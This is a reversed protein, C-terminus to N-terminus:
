FRNEDNFKDNVVNILDLYGSFHNKQVFQQNGQIFVYIIVFKVLIAFELEKKSFIFNVDVINYFQISALVM